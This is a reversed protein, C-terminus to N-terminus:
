VAIDKSQNEQAAPFSAGGGDHCPITSLVACTNSKLAHAHPHACTVRHALRPTSRRLAGTCRPNRQRQCQGRGICSTPLARLARANAPYSAWWANVNLPTTETESGRLLISSPVGGRGRQRQPGLCRADHRTLRRVFLSGDPTCHAWTTAKPQCNQTRRRSGDDRWMHVKTRSSWLMMMREAGSARERACVVVLYGVTQAWPM